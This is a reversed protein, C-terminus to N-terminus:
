SQSRRGGDSWASLSAHSVSFILCIWVALRPTYPEGRIWASSRRSCPMRTPRLRTALNIFAAPIELILGRFRHRVVIRTGPTSGAVSRTSRCNRGDPGFTSHTASM